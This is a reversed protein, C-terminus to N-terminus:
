YTRSPSIQYYRLIEKSIDFWLPAATESGWQSTKPERVTVLMVFRPNYAPAFGVFSAITKDKDYHGAVPIQATGTKGAIVFGEPKAWKAEGKEVSNIMMETVQAAAEPSVVQEGKSIPIERNSIRTVVRPTVLQGKNAIAGVARLMQIPTVAIGQGFSATALDIDRWDREPRLPPSSEDQLDVGTAQGFGFAKIYSLFKNKGMKRQVFVMGVNDSHQLVEVMTSQPFYKDNWTRITYDSVDVPGQCINCKDEPKIEHSDLAAAMVLVKFTSGPEYSNAVAPNKYLDPEFDVYKQPDYGPLSVMALINGTQPEM